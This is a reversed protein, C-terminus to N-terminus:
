RKLFRSLVVVDAAVVLACGSWIVTTGIGLEGMASIQKGTVILVVVVMMPIFSLGFASVFHGGRFVIGLSAGLLLLALTSSSYALRTHLEGICQSVVSRRLKIVGNRVDHFRANFVDFTAQEDVLREDSVEKAQALVQPPASIRTLTDSPREVGPTDDFRVKKIEIIIGPVNDVGRDEVRIRAKEAEITRSGGTWSQAITVAELEIKDTEFQQARAAEIAYSYKDGVLRFVGDNERQQVLAEYALARRLEARLHATRAEIESFLTPDRATALLRPLSLFKIRQRGLSPMSMPRDMPLFEVQGMQRKRVDYTRVKNLYANVVLGEPRHDFVFRATKATGCLVPDGREHEVFAVASLQVYGPTVTGDKQRIPQGVGEVKGCHLAYKKMYDVYGRRRLQHALMSQMDRRVLREIRAALDPIAFNELTFTVASVMVSLAFAPILLRRINIGSARCADIENEASLRGYTITTSFLAAVPLSYTLVVPMLYVLLKVMEGPTIGQTKLMDLLGGGFGLMCTLAVATLAFARLLERFIYRQLVVIM